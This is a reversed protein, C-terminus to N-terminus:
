HGRGVGVGPCCLSGVTDGCVETGRGDNADVVGVVVSHALVRLQLGPDPLDEQPSRKAAHHEGRGAVRSVGSEWSLLGRAEARSGGGQRWGPTDELRSLQASRISNRVMVM